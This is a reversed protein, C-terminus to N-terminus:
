GLPTTVSAELVVQSRKRRGFTAVFRTSENHNDGFLVSGLAFTKTNGVYHGAKSAILEFTGLRYPEENLGPEFPFGEATVSSLCALVTTKGSSNEGTLITLPRIPLDHGGCFTRVNDILLRM